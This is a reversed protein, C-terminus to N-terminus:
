SEPTWTIKKIAPHIAPSRRAESGERKAADRVLRKALAREASERSNCYAVIKLSGDNRGVFWSLRSTLRPTGDINRQCDIFYPHTM